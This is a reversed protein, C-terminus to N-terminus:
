TEDAIKCIQMFHEADLSAGGVLLGDIDDNKLLAAANDKNVSGGYLIRVKGAFDEGKISALQSRIYGHINQADDPSAAKGTGIAWVPEYAVCLQEGSCEIGSLTEELQKFLVDKTVGADRQQLNEGICLIPMLDVELAQNVKIQCSANSEGFMQRRESHGILCLGGGAQKVMKASTEGTYAGSAYKSINQSGVIIESHQLFNLMDRMYIYPPCIAIDTEFHKGIFAAVSTCLLDIGGNLKWNAIVLPNREAM